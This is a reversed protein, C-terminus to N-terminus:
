KLLNSINEAKDSLVITIKEQSKIISLAGLIHLEEKNIIDNNNLYCILRSGKAELNRINEKGGLANVWKSDDYTVKEEKVAKKTRKFLLLCILLCLLVALVAILIIVIIEPTNKM